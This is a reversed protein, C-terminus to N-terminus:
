ALLADFSKSSLQFTPSRKSINRKQFNFIVVCLNFNNIIPRLNADILFQADYQITIRFYSCIYKEGLSRELVPRFWIEGFVNSLRYLTSNRYTYMSISQKYWNHLVVPRTLTSKRHTSWINSLLWM